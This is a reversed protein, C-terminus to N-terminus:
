RYMVPQKKLTLDTHLYVLGMFAIPNYAVRFILSILLYTYIYISLIDDFKKARRLISKLPHSREVKKKVVNQRVDNTCSKM